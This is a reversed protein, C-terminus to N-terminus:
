KVSVTERYIPLKVRFTVGKGEESDAEITGDHLQTTLQALPLELGTCRTAPRIRFVFYPDFLHPLDKESVKEGTYGVTIVVREESALYETGITLTGGGSMADIANSILNTFVTELQRSGLIRPVEPSLERVLQIKAPVLQPSVAGLVSEVADNVHTPVKKPKPMNSIRLLDRLVAECRESAEKIHALHGKLEGYISGDGIEDIKKLLVDASLNIGSLPNNLYHAIGQSLHGVTAVKQSEQLRVRSEELEKEMKKAATIDRIVEIANNVTGDSNPLPFSHIEYITGGPTEEEKRCDRSREIAETSSCFECRTNRGLISYCPRELGQPYVAQLPDNQFIVKHTKPNVIRLYCGMNSLVNKLLLRNEELEREMKKSATVDRIVEIANTITGDANPLPFSHIDYIVGGPTGEEKRCDRNKEIAETSSCFECRTNRGLIAYCPRELGQPYVAQLPDNQFVVKNTRPNVIRVLCGINGLVDNLLNRSAKIEAVNKIDAAMTNFSRALTGIEDHSRVPIRYDFDGRGFAEVGKLIDSLPKQVFVRVLFFSGVIIGLFLGLLMFGVKTFRAVKKESLTSVLQVTRDVDAVFLPVEKNYIKLADRAEDQSTTGLVHLILPKIRENYDKVHRDFQWWPDNYSFDGVEIRQPAKLGKLGLAKNGDRLGYLITEFEEALNLITGNAKDRAGGQLAPYENILMALQYSRYRVQGAYNISTGDGKLTWFAYFGLVLLAVFLATLPAIVAALMLNIVKRPRERTKKETM